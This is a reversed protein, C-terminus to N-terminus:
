PRELLQKILNKATEGTWERPGAIGGVVKGQKDILYSIPIARIGYMQYAEFNPYDVVVPFTLQHKKIFPKASKVGDRDISVALIVFGDKKFEQYLKEFDPMEKECPVCWSAWFNLLVVKGRFDKLQITKGEVSKLAFAPAELTGDFKQVGLEAMYDPDASLFGPFSLVLFVFFGWRSVWSRSAHIMTFM